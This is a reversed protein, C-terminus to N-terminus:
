TRAAAASSRPPQFPAVAAAVRRPPHHFHTPTNEKNRRKRGVHAASSSLADRTTIFNRAPNEDPRQEYCPKAKGARFVSLCVSALVFASISNKQRSSPWGPSRKPAHMCRTKNQIQKDRETQVREMRNGARDTRSGIRVGSFRRKPIHRIGGKKRVRRPGGGAGHLQAMTAFTCDSSSPFSNDTAAITGSGPLAPPPLPPSFLTAGAENTSPNLHATPKFCKQSM